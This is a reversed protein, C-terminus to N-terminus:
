KFLKEVQPVATPLCFVLVSDEDTIKTDGHALSVHGRHNVAGIVSSSPFKLEALTKRTIKSGPDPSFQIAEVGVDEFNTVLLQEDRKIYDLIETVTCMNKSVVADLGIVKMAPIYETTSVHIITQRVGLHKALMASLLNTQENQTVAIFSDLEEPDEMRLFEIDTGDGHLVLTKSLESALAQAKERNKEVLRVEIEEELALAVARGIKGGGLIMVNKTERVPKGILYMLNEVHEKRVLFYCIDNIEIV